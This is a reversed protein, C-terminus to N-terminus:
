RKNQKIKYLFFGILAILHPVGFVTLFARYSATATSRPSDSAFAAMLLSVFLLLVEGVFIAFCGLCSFREVQPHLDQNESSPQSM